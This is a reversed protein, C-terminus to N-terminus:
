HEFVDVPRSTGALYPYAAERESVARFEYHAPGPFRFRYRAAFRGSGGARVVEFDIWNGGPARAQLVVVKGGGPVPGGLLRGAFTITQGVGSVRPSVAFWVGAHVRLSLSATALTQVSGAFSSYVLTIRRSSAGRPVAINFYGAANTRPRSFAASRAGPAAATGVAEVAANPIPEGNPGLLRGVIRPSAGYKVTLASKRDRRWAASLRARIIATPANPGSEAGNEVLVQRDIVTTANGAADTVLVQIRHVGNALGETPVTVDAHVTEACPRLYLFAPTGDTTGGVNVCHGGNSDLPTESLTRGDVIVRAGFIGSGRDVATFNVAPSGHVEQGGSVEGSVGSVEPSEEEQITSDASFIVLSAAYGAADGRGAPCEFEAVGGCTVSATFGGPLSPTPVQVVNTSGMASSSSGLEDCGSLAICEGFPKTYARGSFWFEYSAGVAAGGLVDGARWIEAAHLELPAPVVLSWSARATNAQRTAQDGM